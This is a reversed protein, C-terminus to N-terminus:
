TYPNPPVADSSTVPQYIATITDGSEKWVQALVAGTTPNEFTVDTEPVGTYSRTMAIAPRGAPDTAAADISFGKTTALVQYLAARLDPQVLPSWVLLDAEEYVYDDDSLVPQGGHAPLSKGAQAAQQDMAAVAQARQQQALALLRPRLATPDTPLASYWAETSTPDPGERLVSPADSDAYPRQYTTSGGTETDVVTTRPSSGAEGSETDTETLIVYRGLTPPAAASASALQYLVLQAHTAAPTLAPGARRMPSRGATRLRARGASRAPTSTLHDYDDLLTALLRDEFREDRATETNV